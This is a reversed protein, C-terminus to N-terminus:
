LYYQKAYGVELAKKEVVEAALYEGPGTLIKGRLHWLDGFSQPEPSFYPEIEKKAKQYASKAQEPKGLQEM